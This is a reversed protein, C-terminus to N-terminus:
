RRGRPIDVPVADFSATPDRETVEGVLSDMCTVADIEDSFEAWKEGNVFVGWRGSM